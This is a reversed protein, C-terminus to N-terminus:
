QHLNFLANLRPDVGHTRRSSDEEVKPASEPVDCYPHMFAVAVTMIGTPDFNSLTDSVSKGCNLGGDSLDSCGTYIDYTGLIDIKQFAKEYFNETEEEKKVPTVDTKDIITDWVKKCVETIIKTKAADVISDQILDKITTKLTVKLQNSAKMLISKRATESMIFKLTNKAMNIVNKGASTASKVAAAKAGVAVTSTGFTIIFVIFTGVGEAVKLAMRVIEFDCDKKTASCAFYGCNYMSITECNRICLFGSKYM